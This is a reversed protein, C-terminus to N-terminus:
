PRAKILQATATATAILRGTVDRLEGELFAIATGRRAVRGTGVLPGIRAPRLFSVRLDLTAQGRGVPLAVRLANSLTADLMAALMGGQVVGRDNAFAPNAPFDLTAGGCAPDVSRRTYDLLRAIPATPTDSEGM